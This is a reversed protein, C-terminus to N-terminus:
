DYRGKVKHEDSNLIENLETNIDERPRNLLKYLNYIITIGLVVTLGILLKDQM